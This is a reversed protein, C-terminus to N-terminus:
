YNYKSVFVGLAVSDFALGVQEVSVLSSDRWFCDTGFSPHKCESGCKTHIIQYCGELTYACVVAFVMSGPQYFMNIHTLGKDTPM